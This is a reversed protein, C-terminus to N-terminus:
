EYNIIDEFVQEQPYEVWNEHHDFTIDSRAQNVWLKNTYWVNKRKTEIEHRKIKYSAYMDELNEDKSFIRPFDPFEKKLKQYFKSKIFVKCKNQEEFSLAKQFYAKDYKYGESDFIFEINKNKEDYTKQLLLRVNDGEFGYLKFRWKRRKSEHCKFWSTPGFNSEEHYIVWEGSHYVFLQMLYRKYTFDNLSISAHDKFTVGANVLSFDHDFNERVMLLDIKEKVMEFTIEKTCQFNKNKPCFNWNFKDFVFDPESACGHCVDKSTNTVRYPTTFDTRPLSIGSIFVVPKGIGWALWSLGSTLGIFFDCHFIDNIREQFPLDGTKDICNSPIQNMSGDVGYVPNKDICVVDYGLSKLYDITKSWGEPNNWYKFQATSHTAICVYKKKFNNKLNSPLSIKPRTEKYEIGLIKAVLEQLNYESWKKGGVDYTGIRIINNGQTPQNNYYDFNINPYSSQFLEAYPTYLNVKKNKEKQFKDVMPVWAIIDGISPSENIIHYAEPDHSNNPIFRLNKFNSNKRVLGSVIIETYYDTKSWFVKDIDVGDSSYLKIYFDNDAQLTRIIELAHEKGFLSSKFHFEGSFKRVKEKILNINEPLGFLFKEAGEIDFKLFNIKDSFLSSLNKFSIHSTLKEDTNHFFPKVFSATKEESVYANILTPSDSPALNKYFEKICEVSADVGIYKIQKSRHKLYFFGQSCGLDLVSDNEEVSVFNEYTNNTFIEKYTEPHTKKLNEIISGYSEEILDAAIKASKEWSFNERIEKSEKVAKNKYFDYNNYVELMKEKLDDFDPDYWNGSCPESPPYFKSVDIEGKIKVPIGKGKAYQLQGSCDSYISPTGCAMAEILPLNWGESRSCSLFVHGAKLFKAYDQKEPFNIIRINDCMLDYKNLRNKTSGLGDINFKDEVSIILEVKPNNGFLEKFCRILEITSKRADWRGFILFRFKNGAIKYTEPYFVKSDVGEPVVKVKSREIGQKVTIDAQWQTPVWVQDFEKLKDFFQQHYKTTEWVTYAIKPGKYDHYFYYHNAEALIINLDYEFSGKKFGYLEYDELKGEGNWLTQLCLLKKDFETVDRGHCHTPTNHLGRWDKGVTFNRIKINHHAAFNRFFNKSHANYGTDGVYTAHCLINM